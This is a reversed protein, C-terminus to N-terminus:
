HNGVASQIFDWKRLIECTVEQLGSLAENELGM